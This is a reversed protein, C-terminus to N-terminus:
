KATVTIKNVSKNKTKETKGTHRTVPKNYNASKTETEIKTAIRNDESTQADREIWDEAQHMLTAYVSAVMTVNAQGNKYFVRVSAHHNFSGDELEKGCIMSYQPFYQNSKKIVIALKTANDVCRKVESWVVSYVKGNEM